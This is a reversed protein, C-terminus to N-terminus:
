LEEKSREITMTEESAEVGAVRTTDKAVVVCCFCTDHQWRAQAAELKARGFFDIGDAVDNDVKDIRRRPKEGATGELRDVASEDDEPSTDVALSDNKNKLKDSLFPIM